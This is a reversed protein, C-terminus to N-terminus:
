IAYTQLALRDAEWERQQPNLFWQKANLLSRTALPLLPTQDIEIRAIGTVTDNKQELIGRQIYNEKQLLLGRNTIFEVNCEENKMLVCQLALEAQIQEPKESYKEAIMHLSEEYTDCLYSSRFLKRTETALRAGKAQSFTVTTHTLYPSNM